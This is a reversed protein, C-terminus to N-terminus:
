YRVRSITATWVIGLAQLLLAATVVSLGIESTLFLGMRPPDTRWMVIGIFATVAMVVVISVRSQVTLSNIRRRVEVRDRITRGITALTPALSGGVEWHVSLSTVFLRFAELPVRALLGRLVAQPADGFRIRGLVEQLQPRLPKRAEEAAAELANMMSGGARLAGVMIDIADGLQSEILVSKRAALMAELQAGLLGIMLGVTLVAFIIALHLLFVGQYFAIAAYLGASVAAGLTWPLWRYRRLFPRARPPPTTEAARSLSVGTGGITMPPPPFDLREEMRRRNALVRWWRYVAYLLVLLVFVGGLLAAELM